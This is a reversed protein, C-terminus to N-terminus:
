NQQKTKNYADWEEQTMLTEYQYYDQDKHQNKLQASTQPTSINTEETKNKTPTSFIPVPPPTITNTVPTKKNDTDETTPTDRKITTKNRLFTILAGLGGLGIKYYIKMGTYAGNANNDILLLCGIIISLLKKM